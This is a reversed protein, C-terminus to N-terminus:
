CINCRLMIEDTQRISSPTFLTWLLPFGWLNWRIQVVLVFAGSGWFELVGSSTFPLIVPLGTPTWSSFVCGGRCIHHTTKQSPFFAEKRLSPRDTLTNRLPAPQKGGQLDGDQLYCLNQLSVVLNAVKGGPFRLPFCFNLRTFTFVLETLLFFDVWSKVFWSCMVKCEEMQRKPQIIEWRGRVYLM